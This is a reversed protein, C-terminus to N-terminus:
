IKVAIFWIILEGKLIVHRTEFGTKFYRISFFIVGEFELYKAFTQSM